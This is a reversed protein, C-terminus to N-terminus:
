GADFVSDPELAIWYEIPLNQIKLTLSLSQHYPLMM